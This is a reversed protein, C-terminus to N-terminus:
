NKGNYVLEVYVDGLLTKNSLESAIKSLNMNKFFSPLYLLRGKSNFFLENEGIKEKVTKFILHMDAFLNQSSVKKM